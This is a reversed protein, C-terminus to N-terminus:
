LNKKLNCLNYVLTIIDVDIALQVNKPQVNESHIIIINHPNNMEIAIHRAWEM